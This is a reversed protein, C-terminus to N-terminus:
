KLGALATELKQDGGLGTYVVTGARDVIVVYSTAPVDYAGTAEGKADFLQTWPLRHRAVYRQVVEPKQNASVAVGVFAVRKGYKAHLRKLEPELERCSPCWTAWFEILVPTKGVFQALNTARGDLTALTAAPAKAGVDIGIQARATSASIALLAAIALAVAFTRAAFASRRDGRTSRCSGGASRGAGATARLGRGWGERGRVFSLVV